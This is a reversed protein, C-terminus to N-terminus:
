GLKHLVIYLKNSLSIKVNFCEEFHVLNLYCSLNFNIRNRPGVLLYLLQRGQIDILHYMLDRRIFLGLRDFHGQLWSRSYYQGIFFRSFAGDLSISDNSCVRCNSILPEDSVVIFIPDRNDEIDRLWSMSFILLPRFATEKTHIISVSAM